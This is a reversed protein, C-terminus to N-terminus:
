QLRFNVDIRARVAVPKGDKTGPQFRWTQISAIANADMGPDLSKIVEIDHARQDVGVVLTLSVTGELKADKAEDTYKPETKELVKPPVIGPGIKYIKEAFSVTTMLALLLPIAIATRRTAGSARPRHEFLRALRDHLTSSATMACGLLLSSSFERAVDLLVKAYADAAVGASLVADDCALEQERDLRATIIWALPNWWLLARSGQAAYKALCDRRQIHASEHLLVAEFRPEDWERASGPLLILPRVVGCTLPTSVNAIRVEVGDSQQFHVSRRRVRLLLIWGGAARIAMIFAGLAWVAALALPWNAPNTGAHSVGSVAPLGAPVSILYSWQAPWLALLPVIAASALSTLYVLHRVAASQARMFRAFVLGAALVATSKIAVSILYSELM